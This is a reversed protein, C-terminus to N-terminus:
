KRNPEHRTCIQQKDPIEICRIGELLSSLANEDTDGEEAEIDLGTLPKKAKVKALNAVDIWHLNTKVKINIEM